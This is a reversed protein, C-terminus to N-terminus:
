RRGPVGMRHWETGDPGIQIDDTVTPRYYQGGIVKRAKREKRDLHLLWFLGAALTLMLGIFIYNSIEVRLMVERVVPDSM